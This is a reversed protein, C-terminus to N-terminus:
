VLRRAGLAGFAGKAESERVAELLLEKTKQGGSGDGKRSATEPGAEADREEMGGLADANTSARREGGMQTPPEGGRGGEGGEEGPVEMDEAAAAVETLPELTLPGKFEFAGEFEDPPLACNFILV